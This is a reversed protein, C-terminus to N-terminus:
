PLLRFSLGLSDGEDPELSDTVDPVEGYVVEALAIVLEAPTLRQPM